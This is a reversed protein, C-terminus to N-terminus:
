KVIAKKGNIVYIGKQAKKVQQGALNYIAGDAKATEITKIATAEGDIAIFERVASGAPITLYAKGAPVSNGSALKYFGLVDNSKALVYITNAEDNQVKGDSIKLDNEVNDASEVYSYEYTGEAANVIVATNAPVATVQQLKVVGNELKGVYAKVGTGYNVAKTSGCTAWGQGGVSYTAPSKSFYCTKITIPKSPVSWLSFITFDNVKDADTLEVEYKTLGKLNFYPDNGEGYAHLYWDGEVNGDFEVVIKKFGDQIEQTVDLPKYQFINQFTATSTFTAAYLNDRNYSPTQLTSPYIPEIIIGDKGGRLALPTKEGNEKALYMETITICTGEEVSSQNNFVTIEGLTNKGSCVTEFKEWSDSPHYDGDWVAWTGIQGTGFKIVLTDFGSVDLDKLQFVNTQNATVTYKAAFLNSKGDDFVYTSPAIPEITVNNAGGKLPIPKTVDDAFVSGMMTLLM